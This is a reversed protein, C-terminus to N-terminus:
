YRLPNGAKTWICVVNPSIGRAVAAGGVTYELILAWGIIWAVRYFFVMGKHFFCICLIGSMGIKQTKTLLLNIKCDQVLNQNLFGSLM